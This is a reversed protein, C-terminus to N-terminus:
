VQKRKWVRLITFFLQNLSQGIELSNILKLNAQSYFRNLFLFTYFIINKSAVCSSWLTTGISECIDDYLAWHMLLYKNRLLSYHYLLNESAYKSSVRVDVIKLFYSIPFRLYMTLTTSQTRTVGRTTIM